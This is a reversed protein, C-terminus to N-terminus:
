SQLLESNSDVFVKIDQIYDTIKVKAEDINKLKELLNPNDRTKAQNDFIEVFKQKIKSLKSYNLM